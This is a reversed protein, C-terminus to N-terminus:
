SLDPASNNFTRAYNFPLLAILKEETDAARIHSLVHKLYAYPEVKHLKCTQILSYIVAGATAGTPQDFFLWNKRGIVFTKIGRESANNDIELRGDDLYRMLAPWHNLSYNIAKAISSNPPAKKLQEDLYSKIRLLIPKADAQRKAYIDATSLTEDRCQKEIAYLKKILNVVTTAVGTRQTSTKLIDVFKRRAHAMCAVHQVKGEDFLADYGSYADCHLYGNFGDFFDRAIEGKRTTHYQYIACHEEPAGGAFYWMRSSTQAAREPEKLVQVPTEDAYAIDYGIMTKRMKEVLPTLLTGCKILWHSLTARPIDVGIRQLIREQRYLPLHDSYKCVMVHALLGPSAISKPLPHLPVPATIITDECTKCAFTERIHVLVQIKAPIIDLQEGREDSIKTLVAGCACQKQAEEITYVMEVRPLDAPLPKRGGGCKKRTHAPIQIEQEAADIEASEDETTQAEDFANDAQPEVHKESRTGYYEQLLQRIREELAVIKAQYENLQQEKSQLQQEQKTVTQHLETITDHQYTITHEKQTILRHQEAITQQLATTLTRLKQETTANVDM